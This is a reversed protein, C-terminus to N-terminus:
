MFQADVILSLTLMLTESVNIVSKLLSFLVLRAEISCWLFTHRQWFLAKLRGTVKVKLRQGQFGKWCHGIMSNIGPKLLIQGNLVFIDHWLFYTNVFLLSLFLCHRSPRMVYHRWQRNHPPPRFIAGFIVIFVYQSFNRCDILCYKVNYDDVGWNLM